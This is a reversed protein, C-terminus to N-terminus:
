RGTTDSAYSACRACTDGCAAPGAPAGLIRAATLREVLDAKRLRRGASDTRFEYGLQQLESQLAAVSMRDPAELAPPEGDHANRTRPPM